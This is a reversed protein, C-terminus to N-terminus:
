SLSQASRHGLVNNTIAVTVTAGAVPKGSGDVVTGTVQAPSFLQVTNNVSSELTCGGVALGPADVMCGRVGYPFSPNLLPVDVSFNGSSDTTLTAVRDLRNLDFVYVTAGVVPKGSPDVVHCTVVAAGCQSTLLADLAIFAFLLLLQLNLRMRPYKEM